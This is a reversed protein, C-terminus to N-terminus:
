FLSIRVLASGFAILGLGTLATQADPEFGYKWGIATAMAGFLVSLCGVVFVFVKGLANM